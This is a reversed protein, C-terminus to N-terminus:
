KVGAGGTPGWAAASASCAGGGSAGQAGTLMYPAAPLLVQAAAACPPFICLCACPSTCAHVHLHPSALSLKGARHCHSHKWCPGARHRLAAVPITHSHRAIRSFPAAPPKDVAGSSPSACPGQAESVQQRASAPPARGALMGWLFLSSMKSNYPPASVCPTWYACWHRHRRM